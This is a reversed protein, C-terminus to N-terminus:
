EPICIPEHTPNGQKQDGDLAQEKGNLPSKSPETPKTQLGAGQLRYLERLSRRYTRSLHIDYRLAASLGKSKDSVASFAAGGRMDDNYKEFRKRSPVSDPIFQNTMESWVTGDLGIFALAMPRTTSSLMPLFIKLITTVTKRGIYNRAPNPKKKLTSEPM